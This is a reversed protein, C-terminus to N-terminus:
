CYLIVEGVPRLLGRLGEETMEQEALDEEDDYFSNKLQGM